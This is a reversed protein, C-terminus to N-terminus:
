EDATNPKYDETTQVECFMEGVYIRFKLSGEEPDNFMIEVDDGNRTVAKIGYAKFLKALNNLFNTKYVTM